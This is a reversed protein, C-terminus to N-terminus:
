RCLQCNPSRIGRAVHWRQHTSSLGGRSKDESDQFLRSLCEGRVDQNKGDVSRAPLLKWPSPQKLENTARAAERAKLILAYCNEAWADGKARITEFDGNSYPLERYHPRFHVHARHHIEEMRWSVRLRYKERCIPCPPSDMEIRHIKAKVQYSGLLKLTIERKLHRRL